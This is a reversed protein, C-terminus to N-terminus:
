FRRQWQTDVAWSGDGEQTLVLTVNKRVRWEIQVIYQRNTAPETSYTVFIDRSLRKGVTVGVGAVPQGAEIVPDIRFRDFPFLNGVRRSIASAAQGYLLQRALLDPALDEAGAAPAEGPAPRQGTAILSVIELDALNADSGFNVDPNELTGGLNLTIDFGQVETQAVLDIVPDIRNPNSFNLNGRQVEYENDNFVLTGGPDIDVDGFMVPRALSGRVTLQVDGQLNAVNNRVRLADNGRITLALQTTAQLEDIEALELRQRQLATQIFALLDVPVDEVYLSRDLFVEGRIVRTGDGNSALTLAADGRNLLFEPFRATVDDAVVDLRYSPQRNPAPLDLQGDMRLTGNGLRAYLEDLIIRDRDFSLFGHIGEFAQAFDPVIVRGDRVAGQGSLSPASATGRVAGLLDVAGEIRYDPLFFEAWAAAITSQFRLDLPVSGGLGVTGSAFLENDTDPEALYLSRLDVREATLEAVVPERNVITRGEYQLRLDALRLVARSEASRFDADLAVTGLTSGTFEPLPRPSLARALVGLQDSRLDLGVDAGQRDLRGEGQFTALGLLGGQVTVRRGDWSAVATTDGGTGLPRGQLRLDRGVLSVTARPRELTGSAAAELTVRGTLESGLYQRLPDAALSLSPATVTFDMAGTAQDFSGLAYVTGAPTEVQGHEVTVRGADFAVAARARGLPVGYAALDEVRADVRGSLREPSGSLDVRGTLQGQFDDALDPGLFWALGAAPWRAADLALVLPQAAARRGEPPLPVRGGVSLVGGGRRLELRLDEVARPTLTLTGQVADAATVPARVEQLDLRLRLSYDQRAFEISGEAVGRGATPLWFAPEEGREPPGLLVPGLPGLDRSALRFDLRGTGRDLDYTFGPSAIDQGPATLQLARGSVVGGDLLIPLTGSIPLGTESTGRVEVDARGSGALPAESNFRYALTGRARGSLGSVIPLEEGPFQDSIVQQLSLDAYELDLAVPTGPGQHRTDIAILGGVTGQAYRARGLQVDLDDRDGVFSAQVDEFVRGFTAIRPASATGSYGWGDPTWEFRGRLTAPGEVPRELYGLRNALHAAGTGEFRLEVRRSGARYAVFGSAQAALQPAAIRANAIEIRGLDPRLSGRVAATFPYPRARPLTTVVEQAVILADLRNGGEGGREARGIL